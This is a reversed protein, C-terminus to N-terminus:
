DVTGDIIRAPFVVEVTARLLEELRGPAAVLHDDEGDLRRERADAARLFRDGGKDALMGVAEDAPARDVGVVRGADLLQHVTALVETQAAELQARDVLIEVRLIGFM